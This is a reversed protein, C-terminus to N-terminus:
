EARSYKQGAGGDRFSNSIPKASALSAGSVAPRLLILDQEAASTERRNIEREISRAFFRVVGLILRLQDVSYKQIGEEDVELLDNLTKLQM